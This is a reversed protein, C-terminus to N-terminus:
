LLKEVMKIEVKVKISEILDLTAQSKYKAPLLSNKKHRQMCKTSLGSSLPKGEKEEIENM